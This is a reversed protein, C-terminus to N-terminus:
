GHAIEGGIMTLRVRLTPDLVVLDARAGNRIAGELGVV